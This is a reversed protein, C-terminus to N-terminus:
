KSPVLFSKFYESPKGALDDLGAFASQRGDGPKDGQKKAQKEKDVPKNTKPKKLAIFQATATTVVRIEKFGVKFSLADGFKSRVAASLKVLLMSSFVGRVTTLTHLQRDNKMKVLQDYIQQSRSDTAGAKDAEDDLLINDDVQLNSVVCTASLTIPKQRAHDTSDSGQEVPHDTSEVDGDIDLEPTADIVLDDIQFKIAM